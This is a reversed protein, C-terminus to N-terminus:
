SPREVQIRGRKYETELMEFYDKDEDDHLNFLTIWGPWERCKVFQKFLFDSWYPTM